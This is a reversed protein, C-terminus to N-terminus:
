RPLAGHLAKFRAQQHKHSVLPEPYGRREM